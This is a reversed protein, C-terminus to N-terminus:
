TIPLIYIFLDIIALIKLLLFQQGECGETGGWRWLQAGGQGEGAWHRSASRKSRLRIPSPKTYCFFLSLYFCTHYFVNKLVCLKWKCFLISKM